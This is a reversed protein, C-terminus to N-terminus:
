IPKYQHCSILSHVGALNRILIVCLTGMVNSDVGISISTIKVYVFRDSAMFLVYQATM